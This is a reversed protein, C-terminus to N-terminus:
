VFCLMYEETVTEKSEAEEEGDSLTIEGTKDIIAEVVVKTVDEELETEKGLEVCKISTNNEEAVVKGEGEDTDGWMQM